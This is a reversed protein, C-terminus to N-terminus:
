FDFKESDFTMKRNDFCVKKKRPLKQTWITQEFCSKFNGEGWGGKGAGDLVLAGPLRKPAVPNLTPIQACVRGVPRFRFLEATPRCKAAPNGLAGLQPDMPWRRSGGGVVAAAPM